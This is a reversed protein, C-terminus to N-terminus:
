LETLVKIGYKGRAWAKNKQIGTAQNNTTEYLPQVYMIYMWVYTAQDEIM